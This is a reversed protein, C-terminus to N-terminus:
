NIIDNLKEVYENKHKRGDLTGTYGKVILLGKLQDTKYNNIQKNTIISSIFEKSYKEDLYEKIKEILGSKTRSAKVRRSQLIGKLQDLKLKELGRNYLAELLDLDRMNFNDTNVYNNKISEQNINSTVVPSSESISNHDSLNNVQNTTESVRNRESSEAPVKNNLNNELFERDFENRERKNQLFIENQHKQNINNSNSRLDNISNNYIEQHLNKETLNLNIRNIDNPEGIIHNDSDNIDIINRSEWLNTVSINNNFGPLLNDNKKYESNSNLITRDITFNLPTLSDMDVRSIYNCKIRQSLPFNQCDSQFNQQNLNSQKSRPDSFIGLNNFQTNNKLSQATEFNNNGENESIEREKIIEKKSYECNLAHLPIEHLYNINDCGRNFYKCRIKISKLENMEEPSLEQPELLYNFCEPCTNNHLKNNKFVISYTIDRYYFDNLCFVGNCYLCKGVENRPLCERGNLKCLICKYKEALSKFDPNVDKIELNYNERIGYNYKMSHPNQLRIHDYFHETDYERDKGKPINKRKNKNEEYEHLYMYKSNVSM